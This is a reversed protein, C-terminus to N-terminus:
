GGSTRTDAVAIRAALAANHTVLAVNTRVVDGGSARDLHSLLFPTVARGHVGAEEAARLAASILGAVKAPDQAVEAPPPQVVLLGGEGLRDFRASMIRAIAEVDDVTAVLELGSHGQYFAPLELTRYGIVPVGLTELRELTKELDLVSKAGASVVTVPLKALAALDASEDFTESAGRHVGGIGGTAFV